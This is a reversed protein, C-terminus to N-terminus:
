EPHRHNCGLSSRRSCRLGTATMTRPPPQRWRRVTAPTVVLPPAVGQKEGRRQAALSDSGRETTDARPSAHSM